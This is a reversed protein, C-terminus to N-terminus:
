CALAELVGEVRITMEEIRRSAGRIQEGYQSLGQEVANIGKHAEDNIPIPRVLPALREGLQVMSEYLRDVAAHLMSAQVYLESAQGAAPPAAPGYSNVAYTSKM